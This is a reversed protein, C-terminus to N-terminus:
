RAHCPRSGRDSFSYGATPIFRWDFGHPHLTLALVGFTGAARSESNARTRLFLGHSRGGTGVVFETIGRVLDAQASPTQPAFREYDHDHGNLVLDARAAYLDDWFPGSLGDNGHTGSSFRPQHWFALTCTNRNRRLDSLLWREQPSGIGCGGVFNCNGNLAIIHWAGLNFSYYGGPRPGAAAGFYDFYGDARPSTYYEHNGPTPHTIAKFRGWTAVYSRTFADLRGDEYQEDGLVLIAQPRLAVLLKATESAQCGGLLDEVRQGLHPNPDCAIDGAAAVIVSQSRAKASRPTVSPSSPAAAAIAAAVVLAIM